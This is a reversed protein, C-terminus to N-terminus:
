RSATTGDERRRLRPDPVYGLDSTSSCITSASVDSFIGAHSKRSKTRVLGASYLSLPSARDLSSCYLCITVISFRAVFWPTTPEFGAPRALLVLVQSSFGLDKKKAAHSQILEERGIGAGIFGAERSDLGHGIPKDVNGTTREIGCTPHRGRGVPMPQPCQVSM